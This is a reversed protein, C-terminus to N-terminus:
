NCKRAKQPDLDEVGFEWIIKRFFVDAGQNYVNFVPVSFKLFQM